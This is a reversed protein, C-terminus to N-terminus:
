EVCSAVAVTKMARIKGASRIENERRAIGHDENMAAEPM